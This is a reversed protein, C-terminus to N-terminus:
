KVRSGPPLEGPVEVLTLGKPDNAALLMGNSEIGRIARKALNAVIVIRKGVVQEPSYAEAVGAVITRPESEGADVSLKLLKDAKPVREAALIRAVRLDIKCFDDYSAVPSAAAAPAAAKADAAPAVVAVMKEVQKEELRAVIPKPTGIRHNPPLLAGTAKELDKFTLLKAGLQSVIEESIRPVVPSLMTAVLYAIDAVTSLDRRAEDPATNVKEWPKSDQVFKNAREGLEVV